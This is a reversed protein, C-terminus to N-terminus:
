YNQTALLNNNKTEMTLLDFYPKLEIFNKTSSVAKVAKVKGEFPHVGHQDITYGLYDVSKVPFQCKAKLDYALCAQHFHVLVEQPNYIHEEQTLGTVLIDDLYVLVNPVDKLLSKINCQFIGSAM